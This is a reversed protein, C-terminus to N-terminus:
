AFGRVDGIGPFVSCRGSLKRQSGAYDAQEAANSLSFPHVERHVVTRLPVHIRKSWIQDWMVASDSPLFADLRM